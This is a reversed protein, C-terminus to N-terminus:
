SWNRGPALYHVISLTIGSIFVMLLAVSLSAEINGISLELWMTTPMVQVRPSTGVFVMLPGFVGIARAWAMVSGAVLGNRALPLSIKWFAQFQSCGLSLAVHELKRDVADFSSKTSRICYPVSVLFQCLVIGFGSVLQINCNVLTKKVDQGLPSGFFALLSIGIVVPPLILPVDVITNILNHGFFRFRSLVYGIPISFIVVLFLSILSTIVSLKIAGKIDLSLLIDIFKSFSIKKSFLYFFDSFILSIIVLVFISLILISIVNLINYKNGVVKPTVNCKKKTFFM